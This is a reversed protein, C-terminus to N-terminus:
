NVADVLFLLFRQFVSLSRKITIKNEFQYLHINLPKLANMVYMCVYMEMLIHLHEACLHQTKYNCRRHEHNALSHLMFYVSQEKTFLLLIWTKWAVYSYFFFFRPIRRSQKMAHRGSKEPKLYLSGRNKVKFLITRPHQQCMHVISQDRHSTFRLGLVDSVILM